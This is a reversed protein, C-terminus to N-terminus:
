DKDSKSWNGLMVELGKALMFTGMLVWVSVSGTVGLIAHAFKALKTPVAGQSAEYAAYFGYLGILVLGPALDKIRPKIGWIMKDYPGPIAAKRESEIYINRLHQRNILLWYALAFVISLVAALAIPHFDTRIAAIVACAFSIWLIAKILKFM